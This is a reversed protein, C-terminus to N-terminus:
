RPAAEVGVLRRRLAFEPNACNLELRLLVGSRRDIAMVGDLRTGGSEALGSGPAEGFLEIVAVDFGRGGLTQPGIAVVQGRVRAQQAAPGASRLTGALVQGLQLEGRLLRQWRLLPADSEALVNGNLDQAWLGPLAAGEADARFEIRDRKLSLVRLGLTRANAFGARDEYVLRDGPAVPLAAARSAPMAVQPACNQRQAAAQLAEFRGKLGALEVAEAGDPRVAVLAPWFVTMGLGLAILNNGVRADVAYAVDAARQQVADSEDALRTCDWGAYTAPDAPIPKVDVSRSACGLLAACGTLLAATLGSKWRM